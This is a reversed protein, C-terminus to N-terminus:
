FKWWILANICSGCPRIIPSAIDVQFILVILPISLLILSIDLRTHGCKWYHQTPFIGLRDTSQMQCRANLRANIYYPAQSTIACSICHNDTEKPSFTSLMKLADRISETIKFICQISCGASKVCKIHRKTFLMYVYASMGNPAKCLSTQIPHTYAYASLECSISPWLHPAVSIFAIQQHAWYIGM